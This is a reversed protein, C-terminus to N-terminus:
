ANGEKEKPASFQEPKLKVNLWEGDFTAGYKEYFKIAPENWDLVQWIMFNAQMEAADQMCADFLQKGIGKGRMPETVIIDELYLGKGKWTSYRVYWIYMGVLTGNWEAVKCHFVPDPGFGDRLMAEETNTVEQPAKEYLALERILTLLNSVDRPEAKRILVDMRYFKTRLYTTSNASPTKPSEPATEKQTVYVL